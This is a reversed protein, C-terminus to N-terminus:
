TDCGSCGPLWHCLGRGATQMAHALVLTYGPRGRHRRRRRAAAGARGGPAAGPGGRRRSHAGAVGAGAAAGRSGASMLFVPQQPCRKAGHLMHGCPVQVQDSLKCMLQRSHLWDACPPLNSSLMRGLADTQWLVSSWGHQAQARGGATSCTAASDHSRVLTQRAPLGVAVHAPILTGVCCTGAASAAAARHRGAAGPHRRRQWQQASDFRGDAGTLRVAVILNTCAM